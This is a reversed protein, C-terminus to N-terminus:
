SPNTIWLKRRPVTVISVERRSMEDEINRQRTEDDVDEDTDEEASAMSRPGEHSVSLTDCPTAHYNPQHLYPSASNSAPFPYQQGPTPAPSPSSTQPRETPTSSVYHDARLRSLIVTLLSNAPRGFWALTFLLIYFSVTWVLFIAFTAVPARSWLAVLALVCLALLFMHFLIHLIIDYAHPLPLNTNQSRSGLNETLATTHVSPSAHSRAAQSIAYDLEGQEFILRDYIKSM